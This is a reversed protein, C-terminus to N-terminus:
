LAHAVEPNAVCGDHKALIMDACKEGIMMCPVSTNGSIITPMISADAIRLGEIGHVRLQEDVVAMDDHGMKCTGVPHFTTAGTERIFNLIEEDSQIQIGPHLEEAIVDAIPRSAAIERAKRVAAVATKRDNETDLFRYNIAPPAFADSSQIHTSGTSEPRQVQAYIFFGNTNSMRRKQNEIELLFPNILLGIDAQAAVQESSRTFVRLTAVGQSIFGSRFLAYRAVELLLRWGRGRGALSFGRRKFAWKLTPGYHDRMNEGVGPLRKVVKVGHRALISPNGIGSLELLKPSGIAGACVIVEKTAYIEQAEGRYHLRVGRCRLGDLILSTVEAGALISLNKRAAAPALYQTATSQRLGRYITQQAMAVGYQSEGSYDPNLPYGVAQASKIFLDFFPSTKAAQTVKVPGNRGRYRDSGLETSEIRKFYPLVDRYAWGRCGLEEWTDYDTRQGRNYIMGNIASSGGLIKGGPVYISRNGTSENPTSHRCWNVTPNVITFATGGPARTWIYSAGKTGAEICLVRYKGSESLRAAVVGGSSGSGVVIFDYSASM